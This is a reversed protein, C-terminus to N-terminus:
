RTAQIHRNAERGFGLPLASGTASELTTAIRPTIVDIGRAGIEKGIDREFSMAPRPRHATIRWVSELKIIQAAIHPLPHRIPIVGFRIAEGFRVVWSARRSTRQSQHAASRPDGMIDQLQAAGMAM